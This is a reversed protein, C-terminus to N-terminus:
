CACHIRCNQLFDFGSQGRTQLVVVWELPSLCQKRSPYGGRWSARTYVTSFQSVIDAHYPHDAQGAQGRTPRRPHQTDGTVLQAITWRESLSLVLWSKEFAQIVWACPLIVSRTRLNKTHPLRRHCSPASQFPRRPAPHLLM